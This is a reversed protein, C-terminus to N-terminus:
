REMRTARPRVPTRGTSTRRTSPGSLRITRDRPSCRRLPPGRWRSRTSAEARGTSRSTSARRTSLSRSARSHGPSPRSPSSHVAASRYAFSSGAVPPSAWYVYSPDGAIGTPQGLGSALVTAAGGAFPKKTISGNTGSGLDSWYVSTPDLLVANLSGQGSAITKSSGGGLPVSSLAGTTAYYLTTANVALNKLGNTGVVTVPAPCVAGITPTVTFSRSASAGTSDSVTVTVTPTVGALICQPSSWVVQSSGAGSAAPGLSGDTAKWAFTLPNGGPDIAAARFTVTNGGTTTESSQYTVGIQPAVDVSVGPGTQIVVSGTDHGGKGDNVTVTLTCSASAPLPAAITFSTTVSTPNSFTGSCTSTWAYTLPNGQADTAKATLTTSQGVDIRTPAAIVSKVVPWTNFSVTVKASGIVLMSLSMTAVHHSEDSAILTLLKPGESAPAVWTTTASSADIFSGDDPSPTTGGSPGAVWAFGVTDGPDVSHAVVTLGVSDGPEPSAMSGVVSDIVLPQDSGPQAPAPPELTIAVLAEVGAHITVSSAVGTLLLTDSADYAAARFTRNKGAPISSSTANWGGDVQILTAEIPAAMDPASTTVTVRTVDGPSPAQWLSAVIQASGVNTVMSSTDVVGSCAVALTVIAALLLVLAHKM